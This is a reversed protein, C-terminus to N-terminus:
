RREGAPTTLLGPVRERLLTEAEASIRAVLDGAPEISRVLGSSQGAFLKMGERDDAERAAEAQRGVEAGRQRLEEERGLWEDVFRNRIVRSHAGPWEVVPALDPIKTFVTDSSSAEVIAQKYSAPVPAERTALFRTGMLVGDAGMALAAALGRGDAIGGAALVPLGKAVDLVAPVIVMTSVERVHGGGESGQAVILDVGADVARRADEASAVMHMVLRGAAHAREVYPAPDGWATSFVRGGAELLADVADAATRQGILFLLLNMGFPRPTRARIAEADQRIGAAPRGTCGLVGFGGAQSVAAVLDVNTGGGMGGLVIPHEIGLLETLKTRLM